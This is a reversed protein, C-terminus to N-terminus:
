TFFASHWNRDFSEWDFESLIGFRNRAGLIVAFILHDYNIIDDATPGIDLGLQFHPSFLPSLSLLLSDKFFLSSLFLLSSDEHVLSLPCPCCIYLLDSCRPPCHPSSRPLPSWRRWLLPPNQVCHHLSNLSPYWIPHNKPFIGFPRQGGGGWKQSIIHCNKWLPYPQM